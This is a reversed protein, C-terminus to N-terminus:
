NGDCHQHLAGARPGRRVVSAAVHPQLCDPDYRCTRAGRAAQHGSQTLTMQGGRSGAATEEGAWAAAAPHVKTLHTILNPTVGRAYRIWQGNPCLVCLAAFGVLQPEVSDGDRVVKCPHVYCATADARLLSGMTGWEAKRVSDQEQAVEAVARKRKSPYKSSYHAPLRGWVVEHRELLVLPANLRQLGRQVEDADNLPGRGEM